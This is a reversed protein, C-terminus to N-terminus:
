SQIGSQEDILACLKAVENELELFRDTSSKLLIEEVDTYTHKSVCTILDDDMWGQRPTSKMPIALRSVNGKAFTMILKSIIYPPKAEYRTYFYSQLSMLQAENAHARDVLWKVVAQSITKSPHESFFQEVSPYHYKQNFAERVKAFVDLNSQLNSLFEKLANMEWEAKMNRFTLFLAWRGPHQSQRKIVENIAQMVESYPGEHKPTLSTTLDLNVVDFPFMKFLDSHYPNKPDLIAKEITTFGFLRLRPSVSSMRGHRTPDIEFGAVEVIPEEDAPATVSLLGANYLLSVDLRYLAPLTLYTVPRNNAQKIGKAVDLWCRRVWHKEVDRYERERERLIEPYQLGSYSSSVDKAIKEQEEEESLKDLISKLPTPSDNM